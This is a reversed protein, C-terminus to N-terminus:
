TIRKYILHIETRWQYKTQYKKKDETWKSKVVVIWIRLGRSNSLSIQKSIVMSHSNYYFALSILISYIYTSFLIFALQYHNIQYFDLIVNCTICSHCLKIDQKPCGNSTKPKLKIKHCMLWQLNNLELYMYVTRNWCIRNLKLVYNLEMWGMSLVRHTNVLGEARAPYSM